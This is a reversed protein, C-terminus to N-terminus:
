LDPKHIFIADEFYVKNAKYINSRKNKHAMHGKIIERSEIRASFGKLEAMEVFIEGLPIEIEKFYSSQVVLLGSGNSRLVRMIEDLSKDIDMFYQTINKWYYTSSAQASHAKVASLLDNCKTGWAARQEKGNKTIVPAGTTNHRVAHILTDGGFLHLEPSTSIAYDIRTLYPPSAIVYDVSCAALPLTRVDGIISLLNAPLQSEAYFETLSSIMEIAAIKLELWLEEDSIKFRGGERRIWTPNTLKGTGTLKRLTVFVVAMCFAHLPDLFDTHRRAARHIESVNLAASIGQRSRPISKIVRQIASATADDYIKTPGISEATEGLAPLEEGAFFELIANKHDLVCQSKAAAFTAMVPNVDISISTIGKRAAVVGTTGSGGWPDLIVANQDVNLLEIASDVFAESYGAYYPHWAHIGRRETRSRKASSLRVTADICSSADLDHPAKLVTSTETKM